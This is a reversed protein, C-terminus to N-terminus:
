KKYTDRSYDILNFGEKKGFVRLEVESQLCSSRTRKYKM